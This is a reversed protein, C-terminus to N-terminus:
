NEATEQTKGNNSHNTVVAFNTLEHPRHLISYCFLYCFYCFLGCFLTFDIEGFAVWHGSKIENYYIRREDKITHNCSTAM